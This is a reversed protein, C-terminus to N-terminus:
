RPGGPEQRAGARQRQSGRCGRGPGMNVNLGKMNEDVGGLTKSLGDLKEDLPGLVDPVRAVDVHLSQVAATLQDEVEPLQRASETLDRLDGEPDTLRRLATALTHLDEVAQAVLRPPLTLAEFM